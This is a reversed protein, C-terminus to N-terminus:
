IIHLSNSVCVRGHALRRLSNGVAEVLFFGSTKPERAHELLLDVSLSMEITSTM